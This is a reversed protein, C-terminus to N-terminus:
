ISSFLFPHFRTLLKVQPADLHCFNSMFLLSNGINESYGKLMNLLWYMYSKSNYSIKIKHLYGEEM